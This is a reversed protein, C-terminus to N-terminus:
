KWTKREAELLDPMLYEPVYEYQEFRNDGMTALELSRQAALGFSSKAYSEDGLRARIRKLKEQYLRALLEPTISKEDGLHIGLVQEIRAANEASDQIRAGLRQWTWHQADTIADTALDDMLIKILKNNAFDRYEIGKAGAGSIWSEKYEIQATVGEWLDEVSITGEPVATMAKTLEEEKGQLNVDLFRQRAHQKWNKDEHVFLPRLHQVWFPHAVWAGICALGEPDAEIKKNAIAKRLAEDNFKQLEADNFEDSKSLPIGAEMGGVKPVGRTYCVWSTYLTYARARETQMTLQSRGPFINRPQERIDSAYKDWRGDNLAGIHSKLEYVIEAAEFLAPLTEILISARTTGCPINHREQSFEIVSNCWGADEAGELKAFYFFPGLGHEYLLKANHHFHLVFDLLFGPVPIGDVLVRPDDLHLGRPRVELQAFKGGVGVVVDKKKPHTLQGRAVDYLNVQAQMLNDWWPSLADELCEFAFDAGSAFRNVMGGRSHAPGTFELRAGTLDGTLAPPCSLAQWSLDARLERTEPNFGLPLLGNRRLHRKRARNRRLENLLPRFERVTDRLKLLADPTLIKEYEPPIPAEPIEIGDLQLTRAYKM